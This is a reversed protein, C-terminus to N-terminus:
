CVCGAAYGSAWAWQFNYGGLWGTVDLVEGILYLNPNLKSALTKSSVQDTDVGGVTVEAKLYGESSGIPVTLTHIRNAIRQLTEKNLDTLSREYAGDTSLFDVLRNPLHSRLYNGVTQKKQKDDMFMDMLNLDPLLNLTIEINQFREMYSSIQLIGPGSLGRHTFLVHERFRTKGYSTICDQAVGSIAAFAERVDGPVMLPVLAPRTPIIKHGFQKALRYGFDSAGIKPISLGGTAVVLSACGFIGKSTQITFSDGYNVDTVTCDVLIEGQGQRIRDVLMQIIQTSSKDCFLQGRTLPHANKEHFAIGAKQVMAIFDQPTFGALASKMFHPNQSLFNQPTTHLNTFNCRGGGSIRIKEGITSTHELVLVRRGKLAATGAAMLGAAGAGIVVVDYTNM